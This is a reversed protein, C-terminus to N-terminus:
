HSRTLESQPVFFAPCDADDRWLEQRKGLAGLIWGRVVYEGNIGTVLWFQHDDDDDPHLLLHGSHYRTTRVQMTGVDYGRFEGKGSWYCQLYKAVAMEGLCGEVNLQWDGRKGAGYAPKRNKKLNEVQRMIGAHSGMLLEAYTLKIKM